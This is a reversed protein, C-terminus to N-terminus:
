LKLSDTFFQRYLRFAMALLIKQTQLPAPIYELGKEKLHDKSVGEIVTNKEPDAITMTKGQVKALYYWMAPVVDYVRGSDDEIWVHWDWSVRGNNMFQKASTWEPNGHEYWRPESQLGFGLTGCVINMNPATWKKKFNYTTYIFCHGDLFLADTGPVFCRPDKRLVAASFDKIACASGSSEIKLIVTKGKCLEDEMSRLASLREMYAMSAALREDDFDGLEDVAALIKSM